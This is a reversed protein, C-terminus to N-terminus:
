WTRSGDLQLFDVFYVPGELDRVSYSISIEDEGYVNGVGEFAFGEIVQYPIRIKDEENYLEGRVVLGTEYLNTILVRRHNVSSRRLHVNYHFVLNEQESYEEVRFTGDLDKRYYPEEFVIQCSTAAGLLALFILISRSKM